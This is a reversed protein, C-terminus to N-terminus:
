LQEVIGLCQQIMRQIAAAPDHSVTQTVRNNVVTSVSLCQHGLVRGLGYIAATEMEFNVIRHDGSRFTTLADNLHPLAIPARLMRGQPGYFGPCTVTIGPTFGTAFHKRLSIASEAIYPSIPGATLRTHQKFNNLIFQEEHSNSHRYYHLVNDLGIGHSSVVLSDVPVDAQLAGCTGMRVIHLSRKEPLETRTGFDINVLADLENLVIDINDPGIGTGVVTVRKRGVYGTHSVFERHAAKHEVRDFCQSVLPVRAPDGVLLVTDAVHQPALDLHYVKGKPTLLLDTAGFSNAPQIRM